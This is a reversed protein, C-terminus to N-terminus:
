VLPVIKVAYVFLAMGHDFLYQFNEDVDLAGPLSFFQQFKFCKSATNSKSCNSHM